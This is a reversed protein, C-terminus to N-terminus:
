DFRTKVQLIFHHFTGGARGGSRVAKARKGARGPLFRGSCLWWVLRMAHYRYLIFDFLL